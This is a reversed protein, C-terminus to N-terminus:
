RAFILAMFSSELSRLIRCQTRTNRYVLAFFDRSIIINVATFRTERSFYDCRKERRKREGTGRSSSLNRDYPGRSFYERKTKRVRGRDIVERCHSVCTRTGNARARIGLSVLGTIYARYTVTVIRRALPYVAFRGSYISQRCKM